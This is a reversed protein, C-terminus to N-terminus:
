LLVVNGNAHGAGLGVHNRKLFCHRTPSVNRHSLPPPESTSFGDGQEPACVCMTSDTPHSFASVNKKKWAPWGFSIIEALGLQCADDVCSCLGFTCSLLSRQFGGSAWWGRCCWYQSDDVSSRLAEGGGRMNAILVSCQCDRGGRWGGIFGSADNISRQCNRM